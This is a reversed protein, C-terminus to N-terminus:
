RIASISKFVNGKTDVFGLGEGLTKVGLQRLEEDYSLQIKKIVDESIGKGKFLNAFAKRLRKEQGDLNKIRSQNPKELGQEKSKESAINNVM